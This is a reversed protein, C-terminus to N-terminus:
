RLPDPDRRGYRGEAVARGRAVADDAQRQEPWRSLRGFGDAAAPRPPVDQRPQCVGLGAEALRMAIVDVETVEQPHVGTVGGAVAGKFPLKGDQQFSVAPGIAAALVLHDSLEQAQGAAFARAPAIGSIATASM